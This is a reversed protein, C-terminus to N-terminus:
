RFRVKYVTDGLKLNQWEPEVVQYAKQEIINQISQSTEKNDGSLYGMQWKDKQQYFMRAETEGTRFEFLVYDLQNDHNMDIGFLEYRNNQNMRWRSNKFDQYIAEGLAAPLTEDFGNIASLLSAKIVEVSEPQYPQYLSNIKLVFEPHTSGYQDKLVLLAEYGPRELQRQFYRTDLELLEIDGSELRELQSDVAIKRFDLLPSNVLLMLAMLVLGMRVNVWSLLTLWREKLRIISTSYGFSFLALLVWITLAWCRDLTWGYQEIRLSIGYFSIVSFIPLLAIVFFVFQNLWRPYPRQDVDSQYVANVFFLMLAQLGMLLLSGGSEWLPGLGTFPLAALFTVAVVQLIILLFKMLAKLINSITDIIHFQQRFIIIGFGNALTLVPYYFWPELFLDHFFDVDIARFLGAWLMLIGWVCLTFLLSLALTLINRWSYMFLRGYSLPERETLPQMYLLSKFSAIGLTIVLPMLLSFFSSHALPITQHGIYFALGGGILAFGFAWAFVARNPRSLGLLLHLPAIFAIAYFAFLWHPSSHPWIEFEISQHLALFACGQLIAILVLLRSPM